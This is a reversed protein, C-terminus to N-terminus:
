TRGGERQLKELHVRADREDKYYKITHREFTGFDFSYITAGKRGADAYHDHIVMGFLKNNM